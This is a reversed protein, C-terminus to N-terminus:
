PQQSAPPTSCTRSPSPNIPDAAALRKEVLTILEDRSHIDLKQYINSSHTKVTAAGIHLEGAIAAYSKGRAFHGLIEEERRSLGYAAAIERCADGLSALPSPAAPAPAAEEPLERRRAIYAVPSFDGMSRRMAELTRAMRLCLLAIATCVVLLPIEVVLM